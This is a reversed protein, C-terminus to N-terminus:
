GGPEGTDEDSAENDQHAVISAGVSGPNAAVRRIMVKKILRRQEEGRGERYLRRLRVEEEDLEDFLTSLGEASAAGLEREFGEDDSAM